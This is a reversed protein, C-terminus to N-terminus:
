GDCWNIKHIFGRPYDTRPPMMSQGDFSTVKTSAPPHIRHSFAGEIWHRHIAPPSQWRSFPNWGVLFCNEVGVSGIGYEYAWRCVSHWGGPITITRPPPRTAKAFLQEPPHPYRYISRIVFSVPSSKGVKAICTGCNYTSLSSASTAKLPNIRAWIFNLHPKRTIM